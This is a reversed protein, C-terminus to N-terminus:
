DERQKETALDGGGGDFFRFFSSFFNSTGVELQKGGNGWGLGM